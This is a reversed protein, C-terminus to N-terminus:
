KREDETTTTWEADPSSAGPASELPNQTTRQQERRERWTTPKEGRAKAVAKSRRVSRKLERSALKIERSREEAVAAKREELAVKREELALTRRELSAKEGKRIGAEVHPYLRQNLGGVEAKFKVMECLMRHNPTPVRLRHGLSVLYGNIYAIETERGNKVDGAMSSINEKTAAIVANVRNILSLTSFMRVTDPPAPHIGSMNHLYATIVDSTEKCTQRILRNGPGSRRLSGNRLYGGGLIATLPNITANVALKLLLEHYQHPMPLLQPSLATMSLLANLTEALNDMGVGSPAQPLPLHPSDPPTLAPLDSVRRGWLWQEYDVVGRPDPVVGWKIAGQGPRSMHQVSGPTGSPTVGHTTTGLVFNPRSQPDPWFKACLEDYVGMGNQLLTIVSNASLRGQLGQIAVSTAQAKTCVILSDIPGEINSADSTTDSTEYASQAAVLQPIRSPRSVEIQYGSSTQTDGGSQAVTLEVGLEGKRKHRHKAFAAANRFVLSIDASPQAQRLHHAVLTGISGIGLQRTLLPELPERCDGGVM